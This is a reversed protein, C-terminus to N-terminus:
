EHDRNNKKNELDVGMQHIEEITKENWLNEQWKTYDFKERSLMSIFKETDIPGLHKILVNIAEVRIANDTKMIM